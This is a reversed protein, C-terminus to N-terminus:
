IIENDKLFKVVSKEVNVGEKVRISFNITKPQKNDIAVRIKISTDKPRGLNNKSM